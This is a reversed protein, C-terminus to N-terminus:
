GAREALSVYKLEERFVFTHVCRNDERGLAINVSGAGVMARGTLTLFFGFTHLQGSFWLATM